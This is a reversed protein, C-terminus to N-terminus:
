CRRFAPSRRRGDGAGRGSGDAGADLDVARDAASASRHRAAARRGGHPQGDGRLRELRRRPGGAAGPRAAQREATGRRVARRAPFVQRSSRCRGHDAREASPCSTACGSPRCPAAVARRAADRARGQRDAAAGDAEARRDFGGADLARDAPRVPLVGARRAGAGRGAGGAALRQGRRFLGRLAATTPEDQRRAAERSLGYLDLARM